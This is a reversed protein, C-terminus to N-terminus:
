PRPSVSMEGRRELEGAVEALWGWFLLFWARAEGLFRPSLALRHARRDQLLLGETEARNVVNRVHSHSIGLRAAIDRSSFVFWRESAGPDTAAADHAHLLFLGIRDGCDFRDLWAWAGDGAMAQRTRALLTRSRGIYRHCIEDDSAVREAIGEAILGLMECCRLHHVIWQRLGDFLPARPVLYRKRADDPHPELQLYGALRLLAVFAALTRSRGIEQQVLALTPRPGLGIEAECHMVLVLGAAHSQVNRGFIKNILREGVHMRLISRACYAIAQEYGIDVASERSSGPQFTDTESAERRRM